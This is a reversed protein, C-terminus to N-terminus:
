LSLSIYQEFIILSTKRLSILDHSMTIIILYVVVSMGYWVNIKRYNINNYQVCWDTYVNAFVLATSNM